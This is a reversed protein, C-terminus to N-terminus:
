PYKLIHLLEVTHHVGTYETDGKMKQRCLALRTAQGPGNLHLDWVNYWKM